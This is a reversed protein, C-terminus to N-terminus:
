VMHIDLRDNVPRVCGIDVYRCRMMNIDDHKRAICRAMVGGGGGGM